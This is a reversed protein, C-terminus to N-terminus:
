RIFLLTSVDVKVVVHDAACPKPIFYMARLVLGIMGVDLSSVVVDKHFYSTKKEGVRLGLHQNPTVVSINANDFYTIDEEDYSESDYSSATDRHSVEVVLEETPDCSPPEERMEDHSVSYHQAPFPVNDNASEHSANKSVDAVTIPSEERDETEPTAESIEVKEDNEAMAIKAAATGIDGPKSAVNGGRKKSFFKGFKMAAISSRIPTYPPGSDTWQQSHLQRHQYQYRYCISEQQQQQTRRLDESPLRSELGFRILFFSIRSLLRELDKYPLYASVQLFGIILSDWSTITRCVAESFSRQSLKGRIERSLKKEIASDTCRKYSPGM